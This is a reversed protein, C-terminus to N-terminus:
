LGLRRACQKEEVSFLLELKRTVCVKNGEIRSGSVAEGRGAARALEGLETALQIRALQFASAQLSFTLIMLVAPLAM